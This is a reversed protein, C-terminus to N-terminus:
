PTFLVLMYAELVTGFVVVEAATGGDLSASFSNPRIFTVTRHSLKTDQTLRDPTM